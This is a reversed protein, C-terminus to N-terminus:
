INQASFMKKKRFERLEAIDLIISIIRKKDEEDPSIRTFIGWPAAVLSRGQLVGGWLKGVACCKVIYSGAKRAGDVFINQDREFKARITEYPRFPSTTPVFILDPKLKFLKEFNKPYLVDACILISIRIGDVNLVLYENGSIIGNRKENETPHQKRYRGILKNKSFVFSTNYFIKGDLEVATGAILNTDFRCSLERCYALYEGTRSANVSTNRHDPDVNYYEPLIVFDPRQKFIFLSDETTLPRGNPCQIITIKRLM